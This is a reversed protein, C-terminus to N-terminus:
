HAYRCATNYSDDKPLLLSNSCNFQLEYKSYESVSQSCNILQLIMHTISMTTPFAIM